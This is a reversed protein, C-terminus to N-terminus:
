SGPGDFAHPGVGAHADPAPMALMVHQRGSASPPGSPPSAALSADTSAPSPAIPGPVHAPAVHSTPQAHSTSGWVPWGKQAHASPPAASVPAGFQPDIQHKAPHEQWSGPALAHV